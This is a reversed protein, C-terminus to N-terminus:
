KNEPEEAPSMNIYKELVKKACSLCSEFVQQCRSKWNENFWLTGQLPRENRDRESNHIGSM